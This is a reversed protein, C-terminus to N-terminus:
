ARPRHDFVIEDVWRRAEAVGTGGARLGEALTKLSKWLAWGRGRAWTPEDLRLRDRLLERSPQDFFMWAMKLDCSPDGVGCIGFDIVAKLGADDVLLNSASLDGHLWTARVPEPASVAAEWVSQAGEGDIETGLESIAQITEREYFALPGGRHFNHPGPGPGGETDVSQLALLFEALSEALAFLDHGQVRSAIRGEIWGYVSWKLPYDSSPVGMELPTPIPFPLCPALRPLWLQEKEVQAEYRPHSPLRISKDAGLRFTRNDHGDNEVPRIALDKWHPFQAAVLRRALPADITM